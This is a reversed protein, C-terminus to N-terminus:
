RIAVAELGLVHVNCGIGIPIVAIAEAHVGVDDVGGVHGIHCLDIVGALAEAVEHSAWKVAGPKDFYLVKPGVVVSVNMLPLHSEVRMQQGLVPRVGDVHVGGVEDTGAGVAHIHDWVRSASEIVRCVDNVFITAGVVGDYGERHDGGRM